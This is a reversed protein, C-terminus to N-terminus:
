PKLWAKQNFQIVRHVTKLIIGHNLAQKLDGIHVVYKEKEDIDCALKEVKGIKKREPLFPFDRHLNFLKILYEVDVKLFYGEDSNENCSKIFRENFKDSNQNYSKMFRKNFKSLKEVWKFGNLPLKQSMAWRYLNNADLLEIYSSEISKDYNNMYKNNAKTYHHIVHCIEARIGEEVMLLMDIDTLLELKVRTKKLCAQWALGPASVFYVPDLEYINLCIELIKLYIQLYYHIVKFM